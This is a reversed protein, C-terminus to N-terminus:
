TLITRPIFSFEFTPRDSHLLITAYKWSHDLDEQASPTIPTLVKNQLWPVDVLGHVIKYMMRLARERRRALTCTPRNHRRYGVHRADWGRCM